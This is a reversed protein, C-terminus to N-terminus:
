YTQYMKPKWELGPDSEETANPKERWMKISKDAECTILRLGTKDFSSDFIGNESEISGPIPISQTSQFMHGTKWDYFGISGNDGGSFMVNDQNVSLTNIIANQDDYNLVLDGEPCKWQKSSNASATSFTFEEPHLTLGRVSKKHHTLTTMTKGAQLNWLRVTEDASATIVQPESAQFKVRNITSKHGSLVVVPDRTRIDWVRAVADRGASVLVDLTPHIDLSYVASLHGHYHRVVKNTELDWCKVMKDEGGSFMYPHRPSVGLARVGMIHGTLTLRLKGTALDWIKITKDASGTAFWQNEPEVCVSRVWGQHGTIVRYIEWPAHWAPRSQTLNAGLNALSDHTTQQSAIPTHKTLASSSAGMLAKQGSQPGGAIRQVAVGGTAEVALGKEAMKAAVQKALYPPLELNQFERLKQARRINRSPENEGTALTGYEPFLDKAVPM